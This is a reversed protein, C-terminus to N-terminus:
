EWSATTLHQDFSMVSTTQDENAAYEQVLDKGFRMMDHIHTYLFRSNRGTLKLNAYRSLYAKLQTVKEDFGVELVPYANHLRIVEEGLIEDENIWGLRFLDSRTLATMSADDANWVADTASCPFEVCLATEGAPAMFSSRNKPEYIRTFPIEPDPFYVSAYKTISDRSLLLVVIVLNRFELEQAMALIEPEPQPDMLQLFLPLPLTNVVQDVEIQEDDNIEIAEVRMHDHLVKTVRSETRINEAGCVEALKDVIVGIGMKPYYFSGELHNPNSQKGTIAERLFTQLDLGKLRQGSITPSLTSCPRGWLKETYNLLFGEAITRGYAHVALSEFNEEGSTKSLRAAVLEFGAKLFTPLGLKVLLDLPALPFDIYRDLHYVQSSVDIKKLDEGLLNIVERTIEHDKDHFRHAGSDFRFGDRQLTIANGGTREKAELISFPIGKKQLFYGAALGAPGGGLITIYPSKNM